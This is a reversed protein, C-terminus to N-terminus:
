KNELSRWLYWCAASRHPSWSLSIKEIKKIDKRDVGYIKSVASCLGLDGTSFVDPRQFSFILMMEASWRGIGKLKTLQTIIEEDTFTKLKEFDVSGSKVAVSVGKMYQIKSYSMGCSRLKEDPTKIVHNPTPEMKYLNKFRKFITDGAKSSLQQNVITELLDMFISNNDRWTPPPYIATLKKM